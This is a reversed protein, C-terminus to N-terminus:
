EINGIKENGDSYVAVGILKSSRWQSEKHANTTAHPRESSATQASIEGTMLATCLLAAATYNLAM